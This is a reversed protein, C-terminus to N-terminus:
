TCAHGGSRVRRRRVVETSSRPSSGVRRRRRPRPRITTSSGRSRKGRAPLTAPGSSFGARRGSRRRHRTAGRIGASSRASSRSRKGTTAAFWWAGHRGTSSTTASPPAARDRPSRTSARVPRRATAARWDMWRRSTSLGTPLIPRAPSRETRLSRASGTPTSRLLRLHPRHLLPRRPRPHTARARRTLASAASGAAAVQAPAGPEETSMGEPSLTEGIQESPSQPQQYLRKDLANLRDKDTARPPTARRMEAPKRGRGAVDASLREVEQRLGEISRSQEAIMGQLKRAQDNLDAQTACGAVLSGIAMGVAARLLCRYPGSRSM